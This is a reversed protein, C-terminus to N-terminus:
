NAPARRLVAILNAGWSADAGALRELAPDVLDLLDLVRPVIRRARGASARSSAVGTTAQAGRRWRLLQDLGTLLSPMVLTSGRPASWMTEVRLGGREAVAALTDREFFTIHDGLELPRYAHGWLPRAIDRWNPVEIVALGDDELHRYIWRMAALPRQLHEVVHTATILAFRLDLSSGEDEINLEHLHHRARAVAAAGPSREVGHTEYGREALVDLLEGINCGIDFARAPADKPTLRGGSLRDFLAVDRRKRAQRRLEDRTARAGYYADDLWVQEYHGTAYVLRCGRWRVGGLGHVPALLERQETRACVPCRDHRVLSPPM